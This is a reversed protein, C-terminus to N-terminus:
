LRTIGEAILFCKQSDIMAFHEHEIMDTQSGDMRSHGFVQFVHDLGYAKPAKEPHDDIDAWLVSGTKEGGYWSRSRGVVALMNQGELKTDLMNIRDIIDQHAVSVENDNMKWVQTNVKNMWYETIGAHTFLYNTGKVTELHAIKFLDKYENFTRHYKEWNLKDRRSGGALECFRVSSYHQDHNGKLLVVKEPNHLKLEIIEMMNRYIGDPTYAIGEDRYPDLYDGLFVVRDVIDIYKGVPEKWFTRGHVDPVVLISKETNMM